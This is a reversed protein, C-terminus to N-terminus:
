RSRVCCCSFLGLGQGELRGRLSRWATRRQGGKRFDPGPKFTLVIGTFGPDFEAMSITRRGSAPDNIFVKDRGIGEVVVYHNCEWFVIFPPTLRQLQEIECRLARAELGLERAGRLLAAAGAGDRGVGCLTRLRSAPEIRGFYDLIIGLAAAGCEVFEVQFATRTRVRRTLRVPFLKRM